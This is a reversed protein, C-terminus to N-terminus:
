HNKHMQLEELKDVGGIQELEIAFPNDDGQMFHEKGSKLFNSLGEICVILIRADDISLVSTLAKLAGKQVLEM